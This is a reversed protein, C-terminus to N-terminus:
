AVKPKNLSGPPRGRGRKPTAPEDVKPLVVGTQEVLGKPWALTLREFFRALTSGVALDVELSIFARTSIIETSNIRKLNERLSWLLEKGEENTCLTDELDTDYDIYMPKLRDLTSADLRNETNYQSNGGKGFTNGAAIFYFEPHVKHIEGTMPNSFEGNALVMNMFTLCNANNKPLEDGLFVGGETVARMFGSPVFGTATHMGTLWTISMEENGPLTYFPKDLAKAAQKGISTKGSGAPGVLFPWRGSLRAGKLDRLIEPLYPSMKQGLDKVEGDGIKVHAITRKVQALEALQKRMDDSMRAMEKQTYEVTDSAIKRATEALFERMGDQDPGIVPLPTTLTPENETYTEYTM